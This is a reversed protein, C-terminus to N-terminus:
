PISVTATNSPVSLLGNADVSVVYYEYTQGATVTSDTFATNTIMSSNVQIFVSSGQAARYANYGVVPDTGGTPANWTLNVAGNTATASCAVTQVPSTLANSVVTVAGTANGAVTPDFNVQIQGTAQPQLTLPLTPAVIAFESGSVAISSIIVPATGSSTMTITQSASQNLFVNGFALTSANLTLAPTPPTVGTGTLKVTQACGQVLSGTILLLSFLTLPTKM